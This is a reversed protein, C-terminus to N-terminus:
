SVWQLILNVFRFTGPSFISHFPYVFGFVLIIIICDLCVMRPECEFPRRDPPFPSPHPTRILLGAQPRAPSPARLSATPGRPARPAAGSAGCGRRRRWRRRLPSSAWRRPPRPVPSRRGPPVSSIRRLRLPVVFKKVHNFCQRIKNMKFGERYGAM